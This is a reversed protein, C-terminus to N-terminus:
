NEETNLTIFAQAIAALPTDGWGETVLELDDEEDYVSARFEKGQGDSVDDVQIRYTVDMVVNLQEM